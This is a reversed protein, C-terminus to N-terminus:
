AQVEEEEIRHYATVAEKTEKNYGTLFLSGEGSKTIEGMDKSLERALIEVTKPLCFGAQCRGMGARTRRKIGDLTVAGLPRHIANLIEGETVQECRCIVNAYAPNEEILRKKEEESVLRMNPIGKRKAKFDEKLPAPNMSNILEAVYVGIAPACTLGPSEIGAVDIFGPADKVEGILFDINGDANTHNGHARLGAFSTIVARVPLDEVSKAAQTLVKQMGEATTNVAEKDEVNEATPGILINGHVAPTILIGKGMKGPLQFITSSVLNGATRDLLCYEGKRATIYFKQESVMNHFVDAYVGAANIIIPAEFCGQNTYVKYIYSEVGETKAEPKELKENNKNNIKEIKEVKTNFKFIVGNECANEALAINLGFSCVIGSTPAYLAAKIKGSLNPELSKIEEPGIISLGEVGNEEGRKLIKLLDKEGEEEFALVLAGNRHFPFDLDKALQEMMRNGKANFYAKLTGPLADHGAHVIGSNAKSTGECVDSKGELVLIDRKYRSLERAVAAGSVGAGIIIIDAM